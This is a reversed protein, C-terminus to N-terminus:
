LNSRRDLFLKLAESVPRNMPLLDIRSKRGTVATKLQEQYRNLNELYEDRVSRPRMTRERGTEPDQLTAVGDMDLNLEDEGLIQLFQLEHGFAEGMENFSRWPEIGDLMDSLIIWLERSRTTCETLWSTDRPWEGSCEITELHNYFRSIQNKGRRAELDTRAQNNVVHLAIADGQRHALTALSAATLAAYDFRTIGNEDYLMSASTDLFFRVTVSTEIEAEKVFYRDSRAFMKWDIRRIDDGPQYSRYQSFETGAGQRTGRHLGVLFGDTIQRALVSLGAGSLLAGIESPLERIM